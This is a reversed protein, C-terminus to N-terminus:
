NWCTPDPGFLDGNSYAELRCGYDCDDHSCSKCKGELSLPMGRIKNVLDSNKLINELTDCNLSGASINLGPCVFVNGKYDVVLDYFLKKCHSAVIPPSPLWTYGYEKQDTRLLEHFLMKLKNKSVDLERNYCARGGHLNATIYPIINNERCFRFLSPMEDYNQDTVVTDIGLRTPSTKNFGIDILNNLGKIIKEYAGIKGALYDQTKKNFSNLKTVISVDYELLTKAIEKNIFTGNTFFTVSLGLSKSLELLPFNNHYFFSKDLFPEGSGPIWVSRAGLNKAQYIVNAWDNIQFINREKKGADRYCYLCNLNCNNSLLLSITLLSNNTRADEIEQEKFSSASIVPPPKYLSRDYTDSNKSM